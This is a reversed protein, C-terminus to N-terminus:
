FDAFVREIVITDSGGNWSVTVAVKRYGVPSGAANLNADVESIAVTRNFSSFGPVPSEAPFNAATVASYGASSAYRRAVIQEMREIALFSAIGVRTPAISQNASEVFATMLPPLAISLIVIAAVVEIITTARRGTPRANM